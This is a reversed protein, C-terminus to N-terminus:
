RTLAALTFLISVSTIILPVVKTLPSTSTLGVVIAGLAYLLILGLRFQNTWRWDKDESAHDIDQGATQGLLIIVATLANAVIGPFDFSIVIAGQIGMALAALSLLSVQTQYQSPNSAFLLVTFILMLVWEVTLVRALLSRWGVVTRTPARHVIVSGISVGLFNALIAILASELLAYNSEALGLGVFLINGSMFSVFIRGLFLYVLLDTWGANLTLLMIM